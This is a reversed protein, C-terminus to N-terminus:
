KKSEHYIAKALEGEMILVNDFDVFVDSIPFEPDNETVYSTLNLKTKFSRNIKGVIIYDLPYIYGFEDKSKYKKKDEVFKDLQEKNCKLRFLITTNDVFYTFHAYYGNNIKEIDKLTSFLVITKNKSNDILDQFEFSYLKNNKSMEEFMEVDIAGESKAIATVSNKVKENFKEQESTEEKYSNNTANRNSCGILSVSFWIILLTLIAKKFKM